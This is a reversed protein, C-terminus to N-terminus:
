HAARPKFGYTLVWAVGCALLVPLMAFRLGWQEGLLGLAPPGVLIAVYGLSAVAGVRQASHGEGEAAASLALPFGLAAGLGWLVVAAAGVAPHQAFIVILLGLGGLLASGRMLSWRSFRQLLWSGSLRAATVGCTFLLYTMTGQTNSLQYGDVMLLPLWDHAAGETLALGLAFLGILLVQRNAFAKLVFGSHAAAADNAPVASHNHVRRVCPVVLAAGLVAVALFHWLVPVMWWAMLSGLLAGLMAGLSFCGHLTTMLSRQQLRELAGAEINVAIDAWGMGVGFWAFGLVVVPVSAIGAGLALLLLGFLNIAMGAIVARQAHWRQVLANASLIGLMSGASFGFLILGMQETSAQLADRLAPTRTVWTSTAVGLVIFIAFLAQRLQRASLVERM